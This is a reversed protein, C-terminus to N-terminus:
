RMAVVSFETKSDLANTINGNWGLAFRLWKHIIWCGCRSCAFDIIQFLTESFEFVLNVRQLLAIIELSAYENHGDM